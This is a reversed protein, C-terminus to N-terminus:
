TFNRRPRAYIVREGDPPSRLMTAVGGTASAVGALMAKGKGHLFSTTGEGGSSPLTGISGLSRPPQPREQIVTETINNLNEAESFTRRHVTSYIATSSNFANNCHRQKQDLMMTQFRRDCQLGASGGGNPEPQYISELNTFSHFRHRKHSLQSGHPNNSSSGNGNNNNGSRLDHGHRSRRQQQQHHQLSKLSDEYGNSSEGSSPSSSNSCHCPRLGGAVIGSDQGSSHLSTASTELGATTRRVGRKGGGNGGSSTNSCSHFRVCNPEHECFSHQRMEGSFSAAPDYHHLGGVYSPFLSPKQLTSGAGPEALAFGVPAGTHFVSSGYRQRRKNRRVCTVCLATVLAGVFVVCGLVVVAVELTSLLYHQSSKRQKSGAIDLLKYRELERKIESKKSRFVNQLTDTDIMVNLNPDVAYLYMDSSSIDILNKETHPEVKRVRVDLGTVNQLASTINEIEPEIEGPKKGMIMVLQKNDDLVYVFVNAISSRGDEAGARDTAKVDFGFVRGADRAFNGAAQVQGSVPDIAFKPSDQKRGGLIQYRVQGNSGEDPDEAEVKIVNYGYYASTPLAALIPRGNTKFRPANDNVDKVKLIIKAENPGLGNLREGVVPYIMVPMGRSTKVKDVRVKLEYRDRVERDPSTLLLLSGNKPDLSFHERGDGEDLIISYRIQEDKNNDSVNLDLIRMPVPSNEEVEVEYYRHQFVPRKPEDRGEDVDLIRVILLATSTLSPSGLDSAVITLNHVNQTEYDLNGVTTVLGEKSDISFYQMQGRVHPIDFLIVGNGNGAFDSDNAHIKTVITGVQSNEPASAYYIPVLVQKSDTRYVDVLNSPLRGMEQFGYFRPPNDNVDQVHIEIDVSSSMKINGGDKAIVKFNYLDRTERDLNGSLSFTGQYRSVEFKVSKDLNTPVLEYTINANDGFDADTAELRGIEFRKFNGEPVDFSYWSQKFVPAHDNVDFAHVHITVYDMLGGHDRAAIELVIDTEAPLAGAVSIEGSRSDMVFYRKVVSSSKTKSDFSTRGGIESLINYTIEANRGDDPDHAVLRIIPVGITVNEPVYLLPSRYDSNTVSSLQTPAPDKDTKDKSVRISQDPLIVMQVFSPPNDNEDDVHITLSVNSSKKKGEGAVIQLNYLPKEERDLLETANGIFFIRGTNQDIRFLDSGEGRLSFMFSSDEDPDRASVHNTMIVETGTLSNESIRGEYASASFIPANDDEDDVIIMVQFVGVGRPSEAIATLSYNQRKERDLGTPTYLVGTDTIAIEAVDQQNAILFHVNKLSDSANAPVVHGIFAGAANERVHFVLPAKTTGKAFIGSEDNPDVVHISVNTVLSLSKENTVVAEFDYSSQKYREIEDVVTITGSREEVAFPVGEHYSHLLDYVVENGNIAENVRIQGVSTGVPVNAGVWFEYPAGIFDPAKSGQGDPRFVDITVVALSFRRESPNAPQDAAEIFIAHRGELIPSDAVTIVGTDLNVAFPMKGTFNGPRQLKYRVLGNTGLDNDVAHVQGLITGVKFDSQAVLELLNGPVFVPNNDNADLLTVEVEVSSSGNYPKVVSPQKEVALVKMQLFSKQERDLVSQDQVTLWGSIPDVSFAGSPDNLEYTFEGNAGQDRDYAIVQLVSFGNPLNEVISINYFDVEFEPLNDNLDLVEVEVRASAVKLPNDIQSAHIQLVFTNGPLNREADLDIARDLFLTGNRPDLHFLGRENGSIIDYRMPVDIDRDQDVARIPTAFEIEKHIPRSPMPYFEFIDTRYVEQTFKPDLDDNDVVTITITTNTSKPPTGRDNASIILVYERDGIDYDLPKRLILATRHGSELSFKGQENGKIIAYHVDSNPTNPKDKDFAHIGRFITLGIPTLEDVTVHYPADVFQPAHDNVDEVYVTVSLHSSVLSDSGDSYDCGLRFKLLNRPADADVLDELSQALVVSVHTKNVDKYAFYKSDEEQSDRKKEKILKDVPMITLHNRPHAELTLIEAGVRLNEAVRVFKLYEGVPYFQCGTTLHPLITLTILLALVAGSKLFGSETRLM